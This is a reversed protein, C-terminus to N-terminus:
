GPTGWHWRGAGIERVLTLTVPGDGAITGGTSEFGDVACAGLALLVIGAANRIRGICYAPILISRTRGPETTLM